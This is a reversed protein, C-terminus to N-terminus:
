IEKGNKDVFYKWFDKKFLSFIARDLEKARTSISLAVSKFKNTKLAKYILDLKDKEDVIAYSFQTMAYKGKRDLYIRNKHHHGSSVIVKPINFHGLKENAWYLKMKGKVDISYICPYKFKNTENENLYGKRVAYDTGYLSRDYLINICEENKNAVLKYIANFNYNPIFLVKNLDIFNIKGNEDRVETKNFINRNQLVYWDYRTQAGFIKVGDYHNHIELYLIQKKSMKNWLNGDINRWKSPHVFCLYGNKELFDLSTNVFKDWLTISSGGPVQTDKPAQYPPNGVIVDFKM